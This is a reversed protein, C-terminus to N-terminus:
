RSQKCLALNVPVHSIISSVMLYLAGNLQGFIETLFSVAAALAICCSSGMMDPAACRKLCVAAESLEGPDAAARQLLSSTQTLLNM